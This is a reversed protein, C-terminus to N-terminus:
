DASAIDKRDASISIKQVQITQVEPTKTVTKTQSAFVGASVVLAASAIIITKKM